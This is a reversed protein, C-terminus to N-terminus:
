VPLRQRASSLPVWKMRVSTAASRGPRNYRGDGIRQGLMAGVQLCGLDGRQAAPRPRKGSRHRRNSRHMVANAGPFRISPVGSPNQSPRNQPNLGPPNGNVRHESRCAWRYATTRAALWASSSAGCAGLPTTCFAINSAKSISAMSVIARGAAHNAIVNIAAYPLELERALVAERAHRDYRYMPGM